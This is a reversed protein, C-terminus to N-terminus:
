RLVIARVLGFLARDPLVKRLALMAEANVPYRLRSSPDNAARFITKAVMEPGPAGSAEKNMNTMAKQVFEDYALLGEKSVLDQSRNYFDTKIPGPEVLKVKIGFPRLEFQLSETFGEVAWKTSHYVSYLPFTLRGGVSSINVITGGKERMTPLFERVVNMLGFVNTAFQRQVQEESSAEFPGVMGYGANNVLVDVAGHRAIAAAVADKISASDTVDLRHLSVGPLHALAQSKEPSRVTAAVRWGKGSFLKM